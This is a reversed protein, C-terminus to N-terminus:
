IIMESVQVKSVIKLVQSASSLKHPSLLQNVLYFDFNSDFTLGIFFVNDYVKLSVKLLALKLWVVGLNGTPYVIM